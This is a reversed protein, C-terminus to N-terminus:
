SSPGPRPARLVQLGGGDVSDYAIVVEYAGDSQDLLALGEAKGGAPTPIRGLLTITGRAPEGVGRVGPLTDAGDWHYLLYSLPADGVPGAIILFGDEVRVLDRIGRGDLNVYLIENDDQEDFRLRLVPVFGNRLVPGRFGLFLDDGDAAIGEVDIGNEKSPLPEFASLVPHAQFVDRLRIDDLDAPPWDGPAGAPDFKFRYLRTRSKESGIEDALMRERNKAYERELSEADFPDVAKRRRSHSGVVYYTQDAGRAIGEIDLEDEGGLPLPAGPLYAGDAARRLVQISDGEDAGIVLRTGDAVIASIDGAEFVPEGGPAIRLAGVRELTGYRQRTLERTEGGLEGKHITVVYLNDYEAEPIAAVQAGSLAAAISPISYEDSMAGSHGVILVQQGEHRAALEAAWDAVSTAPDEPYPRLGLNSDDAVPAATERTRTLGTTYIAALPANQLVDRLEVARRVGEPALPVDGGGAAKEAHRVLYFVTLTGAQALTPALLVAAALSWALWKRPTM